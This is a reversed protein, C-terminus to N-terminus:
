RGPLVEVETLIIHDGVPEGGADYVPLREGTLPDYLGIEIQYRGPPADPAVPIPHPDVIPTGPLWATTPRRNEAPESDHQGWLPNGTAPNFRSGLLHTFVKYRTTVPAEAQWYLTLRLTEGPRVRNEGLDYGLFRIAEGLRLDSPHAIAPTSAPAEVEEGAGKLAITYVPLGGGEGVAVLVRYTGGPLAPSLPLTVEQRVPVGPPPSPLPQEVPPLRTERGDALAVRVPITPHPASVQWYLFLHLTDGARYRRLAAEAGLLRVGPAVEADVNRPPSFGPALEDVSRLREPTRPYFYVQADDFRYAREAPAQGRLWARIAGQPDNELAYPTLVLWLGEAQEWLPALFAAAWDPTIPQGNPIGRWGGRYYFSFIPWDRDNHLVVVDGPHVYARLTAAVSRFSDTPWRGPYYTLLGWRVQVLLVAVLLLGSLRRHRRGLAALGGAMLLYPLPSLPVLYRPAPAPTYLFRRPRTLLFLTLPALLSGLLLGLGLVSRALGGGTDQPPGAPRAGTRQRLLALLGLGLVAWWLLTPWRYDELPSPIGVSILTANLQAIFTWPPTAWGQVRWSQMRPLAWAGWAILPLALAAQAAVWRALLAPRRPRSWSWALLFALNLALLSVAALYTTLVAASGALLYGLLALARRRGTPGRILTLAAWFALLILTGALAYMRMQQGWWISLRSLGLLLAALPAGWPGALSRGLRAATAVALLSAAASLFRLVFEGEGVVQRWAHLLLYYLPPNNADTVARHLIGSWSERAVHVAHGEDWWVSAGDLRYLRLGWALGLILLLSALIRKKSQSHQRDM